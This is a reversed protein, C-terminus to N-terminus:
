EFINPRCHLWFAQLNAPLVGPVTYINANGSFLHHQVSQQMMTRQSLKSQSLARGQATFRQEQPVMLKHQDKQLRSKEKM